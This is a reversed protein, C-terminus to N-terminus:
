GSLRHRELLNFVASPHKRRLKCVEFCNCYFLVYEEDQIEARECKDCINSGGLWKCSEVKLSHARLRFRSVNRMVRHYTVAKRNVQRPSLADAERWVKQQRYRLDQTCAAPAFVPWPPLQRM